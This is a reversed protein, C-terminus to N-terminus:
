IQCGARFPLFAVNVSISSISCISVSLNLLLEVKCSRDRICMQYRDADGFRSVSRPQDHNEFYLTNWFLKEQWKALTKFFRNPSFPRLFWKIKFCDTEMHEFSFVASLEQRAPNSLDDAM